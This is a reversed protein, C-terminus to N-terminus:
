TTCQKLAKWDVRGRNIPLISLYAPLCAMDFDQYQPQQAVNVMVVGLAPVVSWTAPTSFVRSSLLSSEFDRGDCVGDCLYGDECLRLAKESSMDELGLCGFGSGCGFRAAWDVVLNLGCSGLLPRRGYMVDGSDKGEERTM